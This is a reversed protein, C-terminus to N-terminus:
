LNQISSLARFLCRRRTRTKRALFLIEVRDSEKATNEGKRKEMGGGSKRERKGKTEVLTEVTGEESYGYIQKKRCTIANGRCKRNHRLTNSIGAVRSSNKKLSTPPISNCRSLDPCPYSSPPICSYSYSTLYALFFFIAALLLPHIAPLSHLDVADSWLVVRAVLFPFSERKRRMKTFNKETGVAGREETYRGRM